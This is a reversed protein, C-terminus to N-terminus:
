DVLRLAEGYAPDIGGPPAPQNKPATLRWGLGKLLQIAWATEDPTAGHRNPLTVYGALKLRTLRDLESRWLDLTADLAPITQQEVFDPDIEPRFGSELLTRQRLAEAHAASLRSEVRAVRQSLVRCAWELGSMRVGAPPTTVSTRDDHRAM